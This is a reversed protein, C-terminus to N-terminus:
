AAIRRYQSTSDPQQSASDPQQSASDPQQSASDPQQSASDPQQAGAGPMEGPAQRPTSKRETTWAQATAGHEWAGARRPDELTHPLELILREHVSALMQQLTQADTFDRPDLPAQIDVHARAGVRRTRIPLILADTECALRVSGSALMVPKGLFRTQLSGPMDFYILVLEGERLLARLVPYSGVSCVARHELRAVQRHWHAIRRGWRDASPEQFFWEAAVSYPIRGAASFVSTSLFIPGTHCSSVLVGRNSCFATQLNEHSQADLSALSWPQWFLADNIRQEILAARALREVEGAQATGGVIARMAALAQTRAAPDQEWAGRGRAAARRVAIEGPLMRRLLPSTKLRVRLPASPMRLPHLPRRAAAVAAALEDGESTGPSDTTQSVM